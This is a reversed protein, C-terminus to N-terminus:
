PGFHRSEFDFCVIEPVLILNVGRRLLGFLIRLYFFFSFSPISGLLSIVKLGLYMFVNIKSFEGLVEM